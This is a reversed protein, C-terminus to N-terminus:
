ATDLPHKKLLENVNVSDVGLSSHFGGGEIISKLAQSNVYWIQPHQPDPRIITNVNPTFSNGSQASQSIGSTIRTLVKDVLVYNNIPVPIQAHGRQIMAMAQHDNMKEFNDSSDYIAVTNLPIQKAQSPLMRQIANTFAASRTETATPDSPLLYNSKVFHQVKAHGRAAVCKQVFASEDNSQYSFPNAQTRKTDNGASISRPQGNTLKIAGVPFHAKSPESWGEMTGSSTQTYYMTFGKNRGNCFLVGGHVSAPNTVSNYVGYMDVPAAGSREVYQPIYQISNISQNAFSRPVSIQSGHFEKNQLDNPDKRYNNFLKAVLLRANESNTQTNKYDHSKHMNPVTYDSQAYADSLQM